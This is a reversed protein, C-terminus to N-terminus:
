GSLDESQCEGSIQCNWFACTQVDPRKCPDSWLSGFRRKVIEHLEAETIRKNRMDKEIM